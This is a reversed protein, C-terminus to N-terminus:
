GATMKTAPWKCGHIFLMEMHRCIICDMKQGKIHYIIINCHLRQASQGKDGISVDGYNNGVTRM